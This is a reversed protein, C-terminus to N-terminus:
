CLLKELYCSSTAGSSALSEERTLGSKAIKSGRGRGRKSGTPRPTGDEIGDIGEEFRHLDWFSFRSRQNGMVLIPRHGPQNFFGFRMYFLAAHPM